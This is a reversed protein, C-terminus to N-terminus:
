QNADPTRSTGVGKARLCSYSNEGYLACIQDISMGVSQQPGNLNVRQQTMMLSEGNQLNKLSELYPLPPKGRTPTPPTSGTLAADKQVDLTGAQYFNVTVTNTSTSKYEDSFSASLIFVNVGFAANADKVAGISFKVSDGPDGGPKQPDINWDWHCPELKGSVGTYPNVKLASALLANRLNLLASAIPADAPIQTYKRDLFAAHNAKQVSLPDFWVNYALEETSTSDSKYVASPSLTIAEVPIKLAINGSPISETSALLDAKVSMIDFSIQGSGCSYDNPDKSLLIQRGNENTITPQLSEMAMYVGIQYKINAEVASIASFNIANVYQKSACSSLALMVGSLAVIRQM